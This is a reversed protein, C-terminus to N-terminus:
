CCFAHLFFPPVFTNLHPVAGDQHDSAHQAYHGISDLVRQFARFGPWDIVWWVGM